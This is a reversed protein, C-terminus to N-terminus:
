RPRQRAKRRERIKCWEREELEQMMMERSHDEWNADVQHVFRGFEIMDLNTTEKVTCRDLLEERTDASASRQRQSLQRDNYREGSGRAEAARGRRGDGGAGTAATAKGRKGDGRTSHEGRTKTRAVTPMKISSKLREM